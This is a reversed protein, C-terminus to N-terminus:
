FMRIGPGLTQLRRQSSGAQWAKDKATAVSLRWTANVNVKAGTESWDDMM